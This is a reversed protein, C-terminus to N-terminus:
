NQSFPVIAYQAVKIKGYTLKIQGNPSLQLAYKTPSNKSDSNIGYFRLRLALDQYPINIYTINRKHLEKAIEKAEYFSYAFNHRVDSIYYTLKNGFLIINGLALLLALGYIRFKYRSRFQPLRSRIDFFIKQMFFPIGVCLPPLFSEIEIKQRTSLLLIFLFGVFPILHLLLPEKKFTYSYTAAVYYVFFVPTFVLAMLGLTDLFYSNPVGHIPAFLYMNIGFCVISFIITYTKRKLLAYFFLALCLIASGSDLFIAILFLEYAIRKYQVQIYVIFLCLFTLIGMYSVILAQVSVGPISMFLIACWLADKPKHLIRMATSYLLICNIIHLCVFPLRLGYDNLMPNHFFYQILWVGCNAIHDPLTANLFFNSAERSYISVESIMFCLLFIDIFLALCFLMHTRLVVSDLQVSETNDPIYTHFRHKKTRSITM